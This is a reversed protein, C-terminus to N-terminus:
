RADRLRDRLEAYLREIEARDSESMATRDPAALRKTVEDYAAQALARTRGPTDSRRTAEATDLLTLGTRLETLLFHIRVAHTEGQLRELERLHREHEDL